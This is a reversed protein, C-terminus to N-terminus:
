FSCSCHRWSSYLDNRLELSVVRGVHSQKGRTLSAKNTSIVVGYISAVSYWSNMCGNWKGGGQNALSKGSHKTHINITNITFYVLLKTMEIQINLRGHIKRQGSNPM